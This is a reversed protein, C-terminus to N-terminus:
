HPRQSKSSSSDPQDLVAREDAVFVVLIRATQSTSPNECVIHEAGPQEVWHDGTRFIHLRQGAVQSKITGTLVRVFVFADHRHPRSKAMPAFTVVIATLRKGPVNPLDGAYETQVRVEQGAGAEARAAVCMLGTLVATSLLLSRMATM